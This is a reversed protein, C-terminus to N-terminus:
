GHNRMCPESRIILGAMILRRQPSHAVRPPRTRASMAAGVAARACGGPMGRVDVVAPCAGWWAQSM